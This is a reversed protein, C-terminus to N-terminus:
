PKKYKFGGYCHDDGMCLCAEGRLSDIGKDLEVYARVYGEIIPRCYSRMGEPRLTHFRCTTRYIMVNEDDWESYNTSSYVGGLAHNIDQYLAMQEATQRDTGLGQLRRTMMGHGMQYGMTRAAEVAESEGWKQEIYGLLLYILVTESRSHSWLIDDTTLEDPHVKYYLLQQIREENIRGPYFRNTRTSEYKKNSKM